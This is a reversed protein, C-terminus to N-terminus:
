KKRERIIEILKQMSPTLYKDPYHVIYNRNIMPAADVDLKILKGEALEREVIIEPLVSVGLNHLAGQILPQSNVSSWKAKAKLNHLLLTSDLTDRIASGEERLLLDYKLIEDLPIANKKALPHQPSVIYSVEYSSFEEAYFQQGPVVGEYLALDIENDALLKEIRTARDITVQLPTQACVADFRTVIQPLWFNAITLCSGLRLPQQLSEAAFNRHLDDYLELLRVAKALFLKGAANLYIRRNVRDFLPEGAEQELNNVVHSVAPQTMNLREATKTFSLEECLVKYVQLQRIKM